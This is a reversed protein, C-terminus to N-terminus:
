RQCADIRDVELSFPGDVSDALILGISTVQDLRFPEQNIIPTGFSRAELDDLPVALEEWLGSGNVSVPAFHMVQSSSVSDEAIFEYGRGNASRVRFRLYDAGALAEDLRQGDRLTSTRVLSFGGGDTNITGSFRIISGDIEAEGVSRGGMVEDNVVVWRDRADVGFDEIRRCSTFEPAITSVVSQQSTDVDTTPPSRDEDPEGTTGDVASTTTEADTQPNQEEPTADATASSESIEPSTEADVSCGTLVLVVIALGALSFRTTATM